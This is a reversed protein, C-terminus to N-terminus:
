AKRLLCYAAGALLLLNGLQAQKSWSRGTQVYRAVHECNVGRWGLLSYPLQGRKVLAEARRRVAETEAPEAAPEVVVPRGKGFVSLSIERTLARDGHVKQIDLIRDDGVIIGYHRGLGDADRIVLDGVSLYSRGIRTSM